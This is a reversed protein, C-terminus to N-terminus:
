YTNRDSYRIADKVGQPLNNREPYMKGINNDYANYANIDATQRQEANTSSDRYKIASAIAVHNPMNFM